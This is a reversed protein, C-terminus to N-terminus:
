IGSGEFGQEELEIADRREKPVRAKMIRYVQEIQSSATRVCLFPFIGHLTIVCSVFFFRVSMSVTFWLHEFYTEGAEHPHQTFAREVDDRLHLAADKHKQQFLWTYASRLSDKFNKFPTAFQQM